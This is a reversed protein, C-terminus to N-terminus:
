PKSKKQKGGGIITGIIGGGGGGTGGSGGIGGGAGGGSGSGGIGSGGGNGGGVTRNDGDGKDSGRDDGKDSGKGNGGDAKAIGGRGKDGHGDDGGAKNQEGGNAKNDTGHTVGNPGPETRALAAAHQKAHEVQRETVQANAPAPPTPISVKYDSAIKQAEARSLTRVAGLPLGGAVGITQLPNLMIQQGTPHGTSPNLRSVDVIGTLLTFRSTVGDGPQSPPEVEAIVVTGRVGCMANSTKIQVSEGPKMRDKAVALAIKGSTLELTSTTPTEHITLASRERVTVVAKGGLLIRVLSSDGTTIKDEVFVDDKFKLVVPQPAPVRAITATGQLTTVVGAKTAQPLAQLPFSIALALGVASALFLRRVASM